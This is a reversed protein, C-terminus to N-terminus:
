GVALGAPHYNSRFTSSIGNSPRPRPRAPLPDFEAARASFDAFFSLDLVTLIGNLPIKQTTPRGLVLPNKQWFLAIKWSALIQGQRARAGIADFLASFM